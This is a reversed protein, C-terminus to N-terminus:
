HAAGKASTQLVQRLKFRNLGFGIERAFITAILKGGAPTPHIFDGSVLRQKANYWRSM